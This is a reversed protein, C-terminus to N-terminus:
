TDEERCKKENFIRNFVSAHWMFFYFSNRICSMSVKIWKPYIDWVNCLFMICVWDIQTWFDTSLDPVFTPTPIGTSRCNFSSMSKCKQSIFLNEWLNRGSPRVTIFWYPIYCRDCYLCFCSKTDFWVESTHKRGSCRWQLGFFLSLVLWFHVFLPHPSM